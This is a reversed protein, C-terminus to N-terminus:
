NPAGIAASATPTDFRYISQHLCCIWDIDNILNMTALETIGDYMKIANRNILLTRLSGHITM